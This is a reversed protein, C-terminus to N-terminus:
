SGNKKGSKKVKKTKSCLKEYKADIDVVQYAEKPALSLNVKTGDLDFDVDFSKIIFKGAIDRREDNIQILQGLKILQNSPTLFSALTCDYVYAQAKRYNVEDVARQQLEKGTMNEKAKIELYRSERADLDFHQGTLDIFDAANDSTASFGLSKQGRIKVQNFLKRLDIDFSAGLVNNIKTGQLLYNLSLDTEQEGARMIVLNSDEDTVLWVQLKTALKTLFAMCREGVDATKQATVKKDGIKDQTLDIVKIDLGISSIVLECMQKLTLSGKTNKVKDPVCSDILDCTKDEGSIEITSGDLSGKDSLKNVWGTFVINDGLMIKIEDNGRVPLDIPFTNTVTLSFRGCNSEISRGFRFSEWKDYIANNVMVSWKM